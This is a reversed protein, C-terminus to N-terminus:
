RTIIYGGRQVLLFMMVTFGFTIILRENKMAEERSNAVKLNNRGCHDIIRRKFKRLHMAWAGWTSNKRKETKNKIFLVL